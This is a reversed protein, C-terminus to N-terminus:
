LTHEHVSDASLIKNGAVGDAAIFVPIARVAIDVALKGMRVNERRDVNVKLCTLGAIFFNLLQGIVNQRAMIYLNVVM